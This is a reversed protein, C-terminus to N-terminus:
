GEECRQKRELTIMKWVIANRFLISVTILSFTVSTSFILYIEETGSHNAKIELLIEAMHSPLM